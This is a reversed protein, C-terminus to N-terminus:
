RRTALERIQRLLRVLDRPTIWLPAWNPRPQKEDSM